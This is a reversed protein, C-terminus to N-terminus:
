RLDSNTVTVTSDCSRTIPSSTAFLATISAKKNGETEYSIFLSEQDTTSAVNIEDGEWQYGTAAGYTSQMTWVVTQGPAAIDRTAECSLPANPITPTTSTSTIVPPLTIDGIAETDPDECQGIAKVFKDLYDLREKNATTTMRITTNDGGAIASPLGGGRMDRDKVLSAVIADLHGAYLGFNNAIDVFQKAEFKDISNIFSEVGQQADTTRSLWTRYYNPDWRQNEDLFRQYRRLEISANTSAQCVESFFPSNVANKSGICNENSPSLEPNKIGHHCIDLEGNDDYDYGDPIRDGDVDIIEDRSAGPADDAFLGKPGFVFRQLLGSAFASVLADVSDASILGELGSGLAKDLQTKIVSGPTKVSGEDLCDNPGKSPDWNPYTARIDEQAQPSMSEYQEMFEEYSVNTSPRQNRRACEKFSLFGDNLRREENVIGLQNAIQDDLDAQATVYASFPNGSDRQTAEFFANWGGEQFNNVFNEYNVGIKDLSCEFQREQPVTQQVLSLKIQAQFPDCLFGLKTGSIYEGAAGRATTEVYRGWNNPYAPNGDFGTNAWEITSKVMDDVMKQAINRGITELIFKVITPISELNIDAVGFLAQARPAFAPAYAVPAIFSVMFALAILKSGIKKM